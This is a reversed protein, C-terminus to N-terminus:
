MRTETFCRHLEAIYTVVVAKLNHSIVNPYREIKVTMTM